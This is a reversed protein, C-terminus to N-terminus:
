NLIFFDLYIKKVLTPSNKNIIDLCNAKIGSFDRNKISHINEPRSLSMLMEHKIKIIEEVIDQKERINKCPIYFKVRLCQDGIDTVIHFKIGIRHSTFLSDKIDIVWQAFNLEERYKYALGTLFLITCLTIIIVIVTNKEKYDEM